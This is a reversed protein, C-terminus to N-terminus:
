TGCVFDAPSKGETFWIVKKKKKKLYCPSNKFFQHHRFFVNPSHWHFLPHPNWHSKPCFREHSGQPCYLSFDPATTLLTQLHKPCGVEFHIDTIITVQPSSEHATLCSWGKSRESKEMLSSMSIVLIHISTRYFSLTQKILATLFQFRRGQLITHAWWQFPKLAAKTVM